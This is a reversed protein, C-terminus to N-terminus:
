EEVEMVTLGVPLSTKSSVPNSVECQYKGADEKRVPDITLQCKSPSLTMRETLQLSQENFLWHISIGPDASFCTFVVSSQVRVTTETVRVFPWSVPNNVHVQAHARETKFDKHLIELMYLGADNETVNQIMLSGNTYLMERGSHALGWITSEMARSYEAIKFIDTRYVSKYWFLTQIDEPINYTLLLVSKGVAVNQPMLEIRLQDSTLLNCCTSTDLQLQVHAVEDKLDTSMTRLTYFGSDNPTVKQLLLSGNSYVTERGSHAPGPISSSTAIIHQILESKKEAIVGKYWFLSLLNKPVNHVQLLVSEGEAISPPVSEISLQGISPSDKSNSVFSNVHLQIHAKEIKFDKKLIELMYFGSHDETVDLILLTGNPYGIERGSYAPGSIASDFARSYEVIKFTDSRHASKYWFFAQFDTPLNHVLLLVSKGVAVNQPVSEIKVQLPHCCASLFTNLELEVHTVEDKLDTSMTRLTYFGSDNLTVKQLLLSGNSYLSERGSHAPGPMSSSTAIIHQILEFKKVAIVGKYWFLSLLNKPLNHVVLLVSEGEAIRSPVPEISLQGISPSDKSNSVSTNVHLQVYANQIKFDKNLIELMYLGADEEIVDLILLTGNPYGIERGSYAPGSVASDLARSYEVIKFTDSRHASKYWFFAQFDAPLNHVLLLVSKGVAVNQPVSEIKLQLPHCCTSIFTDLQLKVHAVEDKLDTSMTRLTYFGSDNPTVKQLLLSGNSYLTERGSHAPGPMSSSTAIIHQILEFKKVAIVGKYWFLSLLNKPLNHVVLLVSEGEAIRSPVPEISLQGISPSDKSNSVSPNVHLQVHAKEIKFDKNLIELMYFGADNETVDLILLTGNTYSLERGSYAPGSIVSDFVKSYEVIKFTDSRYASKYWFFAQFDAPLNHVLLLVSKGVAVNQPVSEIKVQLPHCCASISTNLQLQVYAVENNLDTSMTQLTYFGSDNPTVKQLLLSGNRYVTERGSYAPGPISSSTAIIHQILEFKKEAIVGKYWFLSLLNKPVNHVQLLVSEGEAISPPVSEISLQATSLSDKFNSVFRNVHLKIHAKEINLENRLIELMYFGADEEIVDVILLSGNTYVMERLSYAMGLITSNLARSYEAIKFQDRKYASKYWFFAQFDKPMNHVLLLVSKGVAVNQPVSEIKVQLHHCCTSLSNDVYLQVHAVEDKLDTSMTRLTYFGSDYQTVKKLLLSGNSYVTERGSHAPGPVSSNTAKIYKAVEFKKVAVVGKYWFFSLLNKQLNHVWLLVNEGEAIRPPVSEITLKAYPSPHECTWLSSYVNLYISTISLIEAHRNIIRLSYFGIDEQNVNYIQLSGNSYLTERGSHGPGLVTTNTALTYQGIQPSKIRTGRFWALTVLNEPLNDIRILVNEGEIVQPPVLEITIQATTPLHWCTLLSATILLGELHICWKCPLVSSAEM